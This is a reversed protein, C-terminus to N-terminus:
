LSKLRFDKNKFREDDSKKWAGILNISKAIQKAIQKYQRKLICGSSEALMSIYGLLKLKIIADKQLNERQIKNEKSDMRIFNAELLLELTDLCYNQMRNVFVGRFKKPSKETVVLVYAGLKKIQTIVILDNANFPMKEIQKLEEDALIFEEKEKYKENNAKCIEKKVALIDEKTNLNEEMDLVIKPIKLNNARSVQLM